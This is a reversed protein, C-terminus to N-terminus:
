QDERTNLNAVVWVATGFVARAAVTITEGPQITIDDEFAILANSGNGMPLSFILQENTTFSCGTAATDVYTASNTSWATFNPTGTLTANRILFMTVPTADGHACATSILHIVTQNPRTAYTSDNRITMLPYYTSATSGVYNNVERAYTMRPGSNVLEGEIFGAFSGCYGGVDTTSGVSYAAMTFPFSPQSVSPTTVTNNFNLSHVVVFDPNNGTHPVEVMFMVPGAGLYQINIQFVNMKTPDLTFGSPGTGDLKDGNWESKPIFTDTSNVGALTTAFNGAAAVGAGTQTISFTGSKPGASTSTFVVTAGRQEAAWGPYTGRSIEYATKTTSSNSTATVNVAAASNLTINYNNTATSATTVTLTVIARKGGTVHLIGFESSNTAYGPAYVVDNYYGFYFGSEATGAGAIVISDAVTSPWKFSFRSIVGQGPRYRLRKRSQIIGQGGSVTGTTVAFLGNAATATGSAVGAIAVTETGNVGYIPDVQFIPTLHETHISGFPLRPAHIAVELHGEGTAIMPRQQGRDDTAFMVVPTSM